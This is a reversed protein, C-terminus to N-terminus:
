SFPPLTRALDGWSPAERVLSPRASRLEAVIRRLRVSKEAPGARGASLLGALRAEREHPTAQLLQRIDLAEAVDEEGQGFLSLIEAAHRQMGGGEIWSCEARTRFGQETEELSRGVIRGDPLTLMAGMLPERMLAATDQPRRGLSPVYGLALFRIAEAFTSKGSGNPGSIVMRPELALEQDHAKIGLTKFKM